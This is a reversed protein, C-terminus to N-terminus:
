AVPIQIETIYKKPNGRFVMGPGKIFIERSPLLMEMGNAKAYEMLKAYSRGLEEYPGIHILSLCKAPPIEHVQIGEKEVKKSVPFCPEFDADNEKYECDYYLCMAKGRIYRGMKKGLTGFVPGCDSYKGTIRIGAVLLSETEIEQITNSQDESMNRIGREKIIIQDIRNIVQRDLEMQKRIKEKQNELHALIDEDSDADELIMSIDALSFELGRLENIIMAREFCYNDYYRYGSENDIFSPILLGKDHYFRLTKASLGTVKSFEGISFQMIM